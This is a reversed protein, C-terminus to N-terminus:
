RVHVFGFELYAREDIMGYQKLVFISRNHRKLKKKLTNWQSKTPEDIIMEDRHFYDASFVARYHHDDYEILDLLYTHDSEPHSLVNEIFRWVYDHQHPVFPPLPKM